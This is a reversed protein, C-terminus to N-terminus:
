SQVVGPLVYNLAEAVLSPSRGALFCLAAHMRDSAFEAHPGDLQSVRDLADLVAEIEPV